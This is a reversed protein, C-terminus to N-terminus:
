RDLNKEHAVYRLVLRELELWEEKRYGQTDVAKTWLKHLLEDPNLQPGRPLERKPEELLSNKAM